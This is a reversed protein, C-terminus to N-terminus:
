LRRHVQACGPINHRVPACPKLDMLRGKREYCKRCRPAAGCSREYLDTDPNVPCCCRLSHTFGDVGVSTLHVSCLLHRAPTRNRHVAAVVKLQHWAPAAHSRATVVSGKSFTSRDM